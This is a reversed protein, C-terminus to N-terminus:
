DLPLHKYSVKQTEEAHCFAGTKLPSYLQTHTHSFNSRMNEFCEDGACEGTRVTRNTLQQYSPTHTALTQVRMKLANMELAKEMANCHEDGACFANTALVFRM